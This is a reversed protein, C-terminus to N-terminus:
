AAKFIDQFIDLKAHPFATDVISDINDLIAARRHVGLPYDDSIMAAAMVCLLKVREKFLHNVSRSGPIKFSIDSTQRHLEAANDLVAKKRFKGVPYGELRAKIMIILLHLRMFALHHTDM